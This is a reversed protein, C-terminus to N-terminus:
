FKTLGVNNDDGLIFMHRYGKLDIVMGNEINSDVSLFKLDSPSILNWLTKLKTTYEEYDSGDYDELDIDEIFDEWSRNKCKNWFFPELINNKAFEECLRFKIDGGVPQIENLITILQRM